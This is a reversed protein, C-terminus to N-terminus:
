PSSRSRILSQLFKSEIPADIDFTRNTETLIKGLVTLGPPESQFYRLEPFKRLVEEPSRAFFYCYIGGKGYEYYFLYKSKKDNLTLV